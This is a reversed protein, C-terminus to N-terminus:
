TLMKCYLMKKKKQDFVFSINILTLFVYSPHSIKGM